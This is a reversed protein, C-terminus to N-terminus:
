WSSCGANERGSRFTSGRRSSNPYSSDPSQCVLGSVRAEETGIQRSSNPTYLSSLTQSNANPVPEGGFLCLRQHLPWNDFRNAGFAVAGHQGHQESATQPPSFEDSQFKFVKLNSLLVPDDGVQDALPFVDSSDRNRGPHFRRNVIPDSGGADIFSDSEPADISSVANPTLPDGRLSHPINHLRCLAGPDFPLRRVVQPSGAGPEAVYGSPLQVLNLKKQSVGRDLRCLSVEAALLLKSM